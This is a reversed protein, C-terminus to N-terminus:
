VTDGWLGSDQKGFQGIEAEHGLFSDFDLIINKIWNFSDEYPDNFIKDM